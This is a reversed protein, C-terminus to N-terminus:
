EQKKKAKVLVPETFRKEVVQKLFLEVTKEMDIKKPLGELNRNPRLKGDPGYSIGWWRREPTYYQDGYSPVVLYHEIKGRFDYVQELVYAKDPDTGDDIWIVLERTGGEPGEGFDTYTMFSKKDQSYLVIVDRGGEEWGEAFSDVLEQWEGCPRNEISM